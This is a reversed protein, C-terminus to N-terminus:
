SKASGSSALAAPPSSSSGLPDKAPVDLVRPPRSPLRAERWGRQQLHATSPSSSGPTVYALAPRAGHGWVSGCCFGGGPAGLCEWLLRRGQPGGSVGVASAVRWGQPVGLISGSCIGGRPAGLYEWLLRWGGGRPVGLISGSCIGGRPGGLYEWLLHRGQPGGSVGVASVVGGGRPAGLYEWLLRWGGARPFGWM